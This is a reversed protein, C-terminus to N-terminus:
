GPFPHRGRGAQDRKTGGSCASQTDRTGSSGVAHATNVARGTLLDALVRAGGQRGRGNRIAAVPASKARGPARCGRPLAGRSAAQDYCGAQEQELRLWVSDRSRRTGGPSRRRGAIWRGAKRRSCAGGAPAPSPTRDGGGGPDPQARGCARPRGSGCALTALEACPARLQGRRRAQSTGPIRPAGDSQRVGRPTGRAAPRGALLEGFRCRSRTPPHSPHPM